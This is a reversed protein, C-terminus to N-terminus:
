DQFNSSTYQNFTEDNEYGILYKVCHKETYEIKEKLLSTLYSHEKLIKITELSQVKSFTSNENEIEIDGFKLLKKSM